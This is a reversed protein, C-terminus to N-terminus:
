TVLLVAGAAIAFALAVAVLVQGVTPQHAGILVGIALTVLGLVVLITVTEM